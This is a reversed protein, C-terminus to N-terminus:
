RLEMPPEYRVEVPADKRFVVTYAIHDLEGTVTLRGRAFPTVFDAEPNLLEFYHRALEEPDSKTTFEVVVTGQRAGSAVMVADAPLGLALSSPVATVGEANEQVGEASTWRPFHPAFGVGQHHHGECFLVADGAAKGVARELSARYTNAEAAPCRLLHAPLDQVAREHLSGLYRPLDLQRGLSDLNAKCELAHREDWSMEPVASGGLCGSGALLAVLGAAM